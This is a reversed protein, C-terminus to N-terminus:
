KRVFLPVALLAIVVLDFSAEVMELHEHGLAELLLVASVFAGKVFFVLFALGVFLLRANGSRRRAVWVVAFLGLSILAVLAIVGAAAATSTDMAVAAPM